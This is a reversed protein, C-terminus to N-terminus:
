FGSQFCCLSSVGEPFFRGEIMKGGKPVTRALQKGVAPHLRLGEKIVAQLYELEQSESFRIPNSVKGEGEHQNLEKRLRQLVPPHEYIRFILAGLSIGTTDSGAIVNNAFTGFVDEPGIKGEEELRLLKSLFDPGNDPDPKQRRAEIKGSIYKFLETTAPPRGLLTLAKYVLLHWEYYTGVVNVYDHMYDIATILGYPDKESNMM